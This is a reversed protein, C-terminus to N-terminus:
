QSVKILHQFLALAERWNTPCHLNLSELAYNFYEMVHKRRHRNYQVFPCRFDEFGNNEPLYFLEDPRGPITDHHSKKNYHTNWNDRVHDLDAQLVDKCCFWLCSM